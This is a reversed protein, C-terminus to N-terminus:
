RKQYEETSLNSKAQTRGQYESKIIDFIDEPSEKCGNQLWLKIIQTIGSKFFEMHYEIYKNQFYEQALNVDYKIIKYNNDYGLKFYTKFFIQITM